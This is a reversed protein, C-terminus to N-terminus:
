RLLSEVQQSIDPVVVQDFAIVKPDKVGINRWALTAKLEEPTVVPSAPVGKVYSAFAQNFIAEDLDPYHKRLLQRAAMPDDRLLKIARTMARMGALLVGRKKALTDRTTAFCLYIMGKMEPITEEFPDIAIEGLGRSVAIQPFPAGFVFGDTLKRQFAALQAAGDGLPQLTVVRDPDMGRALLLSRILLDTTSGPSTISIRLGSLAKVKDDLPSKPTIGAKAMAEKSLVLTVAYKDYGNGIIVLPSGQAAATTIESCGLYGMDAGGQVAAVVRTGGNVVVSDLDLREETFYGAYQAVYLVMQHLPAGVAVITFKERQSQASASGNTMVVFALLVLALKSPKILAGM